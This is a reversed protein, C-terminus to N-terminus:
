MSMVSMVGMTSARITASSALTALLALNKSIYSARGDDDTLLILNPTTNFMTKFADQDRSAISNKDAAFRVFYYLIWSVCFLLSWNVLMEVLPVESAPRDPSALPLHFYILVLGAINSVIVYALMAKKNLYLTNAALIMVCLPYFYTFSNMIASAVVCIGFMLFPMYWSPDGLREIRTAIIILAMLVLVAVLVVVGQLYREQVIAAAVRVVAFLFMSLVMLWTALKHFRRNYDQGRSGQESAMAWSGKRQAFSPKVM